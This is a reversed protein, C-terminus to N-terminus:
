REYNVCYEKLNKICRKYRKYGYDDFKEGQQEKYVTWLSWVFDQVIKYIMIKKISVKNDVNCYYKLFEGEQSKNFNSELFLSALDWMPDCMAAYEWDILYIKESDDEIFNEPVLDIHCMQNSIGLINLEERLKLIKDKIKYYYPYNIESKILNEYKEIELFPNFEGYLKEESFHVKKLIEAVKFINKKLKDADYTVAKEIYENIKIGNEVDFIYNNVDLNLKQIKKLNKKEIKRNILKETGKGFLKVIYKKEDIDVLYNNNTMGGMISIDRVIKANPILEKVKEKVYNEM